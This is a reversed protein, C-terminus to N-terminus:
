YLSIKSLLRSLTKDCINFKNKGFGSRKARQERFTQETALFDFQYASPRPPPDDNAPDHYKTSEICVEKSFSRNKRSLYADFLM